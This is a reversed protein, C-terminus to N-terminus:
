QLDSDEVISSHFDDLRGTFWFLSKSILKVVVGSVRARLTPPAPPIQGVLLKRFRLSRNARALAAVDPAVRPSAHPTAQDWTSGRAFQERVNKMLKEVDIAEAM